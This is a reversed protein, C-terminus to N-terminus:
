TRREMVIELAIKRASKPNEAEVWCDWCKNVGGGSGYGWAKFERYAGPHNRPKKAYQKWCGTIRLDDLRGRVKYRPM